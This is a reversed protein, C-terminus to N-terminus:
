RGDADEILEVRVFQAGVPVAVPAPIGLDVEREKPKRVPLPEHWQNLFVLRIKM